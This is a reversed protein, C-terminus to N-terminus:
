VMEEPEDLRAGCHQCYQETVNIGSDGCNSCKPNGLWDIIAHAHIVPKMEVENEEEKLKRGCMPCFNVNLVSYEYEDASNSFVLSFKDAIKRLEIFEGSSNKYTPVEDDGFTYNPMGIGVNECFECM